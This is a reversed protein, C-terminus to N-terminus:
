YRPKSGFPRPKMDIPQGPPLCDEPIDRITKGAGNKILRHSRFGFPLEGPSCTFDVQPVDQETTGTRDPDYPRIVPGEPEQQQSKVFDRVVDRFKLKSYDFEIPPDAYMNFFQSDVNTPRVGAGIAPGPMPAASEVAEPVCQMTQRSASFPNEGVPKVISSYSM